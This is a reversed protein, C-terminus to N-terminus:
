KELEKPKAKLFLGRQCMERYVVASEDRVHFWYSEGCKSCECVMAYKKGDEQMAPPASKVGIANRELDDVGWRSVGYEPCKDNVCAYDFSYNERTPHGEGWTYSELSEREPQKPKGEQDSM